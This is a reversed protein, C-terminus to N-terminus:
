SLTKHQLGELVSCAVETDKVKINGGVSENAKELAHKAGDVDSFRV